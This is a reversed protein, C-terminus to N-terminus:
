ITVLSNKLCKKQFVINGIIDQLKCDYKNDKKLKNYLIINRNINIIKIQLQEMYEIHEKKADIIYDTNQKVKDKSRFYGTLFLIKEEYNKQKTKIDKNTNDIMEEIRIMNDFFSDSCFNSLKLLHYINVQDKIFFNKRNLYIIDKKLRLNKCIIRNYFFHKKQNHVRGKKVVGTLRVPVSHKVYEMPLIYMSTVIMLLANVIVINKRMVIGKRISSFCM